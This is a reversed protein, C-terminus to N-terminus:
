RGLRRRRGLRRGFSRWGAGWRGAGTRCRVVRETVTARVMVGDTAPRRMVVPGTAMEPTEGRGTARWRTVVPRIAMAGILVRGTTMTGIVIPAPVTARNATRSPATRREPPTPHPCPQVETRRPSALSREEAECGRGPARRVEGPIM